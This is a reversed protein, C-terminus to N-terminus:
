ERCDRWLEDTVGCVGRECSTGLLCVGPLSAHAIRVALWGRVVLRAVTVRAVARNPARARPPRRVAATV